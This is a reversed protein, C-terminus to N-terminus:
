EGKTTVSIAFEFAKRAIEEYVTNMAKSTYSNPDIPYEKAFWESFEQEYM